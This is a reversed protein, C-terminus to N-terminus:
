NVQYESFNPTASFGTNAVYCVIQLRNGLITSVVSGSTVTTFSAGVLISQGTGQTITFGNGGIDWIEITSGVACSPPLLLNISSGGNVFYGQNIGLTQSATILSWFFEGGQAQAYSNLFYGSSSTDAYILPLIVSGPTSSLAGSTGGSLYYLTGAVLTQVINSVYGGQCLVFIDASVVLSVMGISQADTLNDSKALFWNTGNFGIVQGVSFGHATLPIVQQLRNTTLARATPFDTM